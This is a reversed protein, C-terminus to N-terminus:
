GTWTWSHGSALSESSSLWTLAPLSPCFLLCAPTERNALLGLSWTMRIKLSLLGETFLFLGFGGREQFIAHMGEGLIIVLLGLEWPNDFCNLDGGEIDSQM